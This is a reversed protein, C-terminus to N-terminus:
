PTLPSIVATRGPGTTVMYSSSGAGPRFALRTIPRASSMARLMDASDARTEVTGPRVTIPMSSGLAWRSFTTSRSIRDARSKAVALQAQRQRKALIDAALRDHRVKGLHGVQQDGPGGARAFRDRDVGHDQRQKVLQRGLFAPQDHDVRLHQFQRDIVADRMQQGGDDGVRFLGDDGQFPDHALHLFAVALHGLHAHAVDLAIVAAHALRQGLALHELAGDLGAKVLFGAIRDKLGFFELGV